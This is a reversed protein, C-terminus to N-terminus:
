GAGAESQFFEAKVAALGTPSEDTEELAAVVQESQENESEIHDM